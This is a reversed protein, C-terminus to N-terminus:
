PAYFALCACAYVRVMKVDDDEESLEEQSLSIQSLACGPPTDSQLNTPVLPCRSILLCLVCLVLDLLKVTFAVSGYRLWGIILQWAPPDVREVSLM